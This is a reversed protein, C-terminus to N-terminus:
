KNDRNVTESGYVECPSKGYRTKCSSGYLKNRRKKSTKDSLSRSCLCCTIMRTLAYILTASAPYIYSLQLKCLRTTYAQPRCTHGWHFCQPRCGSVHLKGSYDHSALVLRTHATPWVRRGRLSLRTGLSPRPQLLTHVYTYTYTYPWPYPRSQVARTPTCTSADRACYMHLARMWVTCATSHRVSASTNEERRQHIHLRCYPQTGVPRHRRQSHTQSHPPPPPCPPHQCVSQLLHVAENSVVPSPTDCCHSCSSRSLLSPPLSPPLPGPRGEM